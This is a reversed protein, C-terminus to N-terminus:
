DIDYGYKKEIRKLWQNLSKFNYAGFTTDAFYESYICEWRRNMKYWFEHKQPTDSWLFAANILEGVEVIPVACNDKYWEPFTFLCNIMNEMYVDYIGNHTLFLLFLQIERDHLGFLHVNHLSIGRKALQRIDDSHLNHLSM